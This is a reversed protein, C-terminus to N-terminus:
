TQAEAWGMGYTALGGCFPCQFYTVGQSSAGATVTVEMQRGCHTCYIRIMEGAQLTTAASPPSGPLVVSALDVILESNCGPCTVQALKPPAQTVLPFTLGCDRNPCTVQWTTANRQSARALSYIGLTALGIGTAIGLFAGWDTRGARQEYREKGEELQRREDPSVAIHRKRYKPM